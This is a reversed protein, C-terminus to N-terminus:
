TIETAYLDFHGQCICLSYPQDFFFRLALALVPGGWRFGTRYVVGAVPYDRRCDVAWNRSRLIVGRRHIAKRQAGGCCFVGTSLGWDCEFDRGRRSSPILRMGRNVIEPISNERAHFDHCPSRKGKPQNSVPIIATHRNLINDHGLVLDRSTPVDRDRLRCSVELMSPTSSSIEALLVDNNLSSLTYQRLM